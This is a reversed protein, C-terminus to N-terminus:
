SNFVNGHSFHDFIMELWRNDVKPLMLTYQRYYQKSYLEFLSLTNQSLLGHYITLIVATKMIHQKQLLCTSFFYLKITFTNTHVHSINFILYNGFHWMISTTRLVFYWDALLSNFIQRRDRLFTCRLHGRHNFHRLESITIFRLRCSM